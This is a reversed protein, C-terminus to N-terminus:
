SKMQYFRKQWEEPSLDDSLGNKVPKATPAKATPRAQAPPTQKQPPKPASSGIAKLALKVIRMDRIAVIEEPKWGENLLHQTVKANVDNSWNPIETALRTSFEQAQKNEREQLAQQAQEAKAGIAQLAQEKAEKLQQYQVWHRQANAPDESFAAQWDVDKYESLQTHIGRLAAREEVLEKEIERQAELFRREDAIAQTKRTYDAQLMRETKLRDIDARKGKVKIGDLEEELDDDETNEGAVEPEDAGQIEEDLENEQYAKEEAALAKSADFDVGGAQEAETTM